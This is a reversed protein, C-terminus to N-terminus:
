VEHHCMLGKRVAGVKDYLIEVKAWTVEVTSPRCAGIGNGSNVIVSAFVELGEGAVWVPSGTESFQSCVQM